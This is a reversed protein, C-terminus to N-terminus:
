LLFIAQKQTIRNDFPRQPNKEGENCHNKGGNRHNGISEKEPLHKWNESNEM